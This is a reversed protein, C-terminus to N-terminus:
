REQTQYLSPRSGPTPRLVNREPDFVLRRDNAVPNYYYRFAVWGYGTEIRGQIKAYHASILRGAADHRPRLRLYFGVQKDQESWPSGHRFPLELQDSYGEQPARPPMKLGSYDWFDPSRLIGAGIPAFKIRTLGNFAGHLFAFEAEDLRANRPERRLNEIDEKPQRWGVQVGENWILLDSIEGSGRPAVLDGKALDFGIWTKPAFIGDRAFLRVEKYALPIGETQRPLTLTHHPTSPFGLGHRQDADAGVHGAKDARLRILCMDDEASFRFVGADDTVGDFSRMSSSRPDNNRSLTAAVAAGALPRRADDTVSITFDTASLRLSALGLFILQKM